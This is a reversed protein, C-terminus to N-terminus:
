RGAALRDYLARAAGIADAESPLEKARNGAARALRAALDADDLVRLVAAALEAPDDPPVLLAADPGTLARVGGVDAAVIPLGARLAEQLILPQGEWRSPLVFVDAAALLGPVDDRAGLLRARVGLERARGALAAALPGDGAIVVEPEPQRGRWLAAAEILTGFGKQSVLRGAALVLPGGALGQGAQGASPQADPAAVVASGVERAGLRIMAAALDACVCLVADARGAVVRELLRYILAAVPRDPAANHVTVVLAPPSSGPRARGSRWSGAALWPVRTRVRGPRWAPAVPRLALATLAGARLGHAHVVDPAARRLLRRLRLVAAIDRMVRPRDAFALPEFEPGPPAAQGRAGDEAAGACGSGRFLPRTEPPGFVTVTLGARLCGAALMAAHRGTGGTTTGLVYGVRLGTV